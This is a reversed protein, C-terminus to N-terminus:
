KDIHDDRATLAINPCVKGTMVSIKDVGKGGPSNLSSNPNTAASISKSSSSKFNISSLAFTIIDSNLLLILFISISVLSFKSGMTFSGAPVKFMGHPQEITYDLRTTTNGMLEGNRSFCAPLSLLVSGVFFFCIIKKM